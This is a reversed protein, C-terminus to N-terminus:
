QGSITPAPGTPSGPIEASLDREIHELADAIREQADAKVVPGPHSPVPAHAPAPQTASQAKSLDTVGSLLNDATTAAAAAITGVGPIFAGAVEVAKNFDHLVPAAKILAEDIKQVLSFAKSASQPDPNHAVHQNLLFKAADGLATFLPM